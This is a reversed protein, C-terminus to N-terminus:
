SQPKPQVDYGNGDSHRIVVLQDDKQLIRIDSTDFRHVTGDRIVALVIEGNADVETPSIGLEAKTIYRQAIELGRGSDLLDEMLTGAVPSLLSLAMLHGASEATPIVSSAGSQRLIEANAAERAAAV